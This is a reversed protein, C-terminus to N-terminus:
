VPPFTDHKLATLFATFTAPPLVLAPGDPNKSDRVAVWAGGRAVEVCTGNNQSRSSKAWRAAALDPSLAVEVCSGNNGSRSSKFWVAHTLDPTPM